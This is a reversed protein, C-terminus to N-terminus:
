KLEKIYILVQVKHGNDGYLILQHKGEEFVLGGDALDRFSIRPKAINIDTKQYYDDVMLGMNLIGGKPRRLLIKLETASETGLAATQHYLVVDQLIFPFPVTYEKTIANGIGTLTYIGNENDPSLRWMRSSFHYAEFEEWTDNKEKFFTPDPM